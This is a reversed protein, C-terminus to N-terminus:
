CEIMTKEFNKVDECKFESCDTLITEKRTKRPNKEDSTQFSNEVIQWFEVGAINNSSLSGFQFM